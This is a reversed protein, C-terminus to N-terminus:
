VNKKRFNKIIKEYIKVYKEAMVDSCLSKKAYEYCEVPKIKDINIIAKAFDLNSKCLFGTKEHLILEPLSGCVSGIVPTGSLYAESITTPCADPLQTLLILAKAQSIVKAKEIGNVSGIYKIKNNCFSKIKEITQIHKGAGAILLNFNMKKALEITRWLGKGDNYSQWDTGALWLFYDDKKDSFLCDSEDVCTHVYDQKGFLDCIFKSSCIFRSDNVWPEDRSSSGGGHVCSVWPMGSYELNVGHSHIIDFDKPFHDVVRAPMNKSDPNVYMVVEHELKLLGKTLSEVIREGGMSDKAPGTYLCHQVIKM